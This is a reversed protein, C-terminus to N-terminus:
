QCESHAGVIGDIEKGNYRKSTAFVVRRREFLVQLRATLTSITAEAEELRSALAPVSTDAPSAPPGWPQLERNKKSEDDPHLRATTGNVTISLLTIAISIKM